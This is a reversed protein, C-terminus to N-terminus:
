EIPCFFIEIPRMCISGFNFTVLRNIGSNEFKPFSVVVILWWSIQNLKVTGLWKNIGYIYNCTSSECPIRNIGIWCRESSMVFLVLVIVWLRKLYYILEHFLYNTGCTKPKFVLGWRRCLVILLGIKQIQISDNILVPM